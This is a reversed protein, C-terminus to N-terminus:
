GIIKVTITASGTVSGSKARIIATGPFRGTVKGKNTVTAVRTDSSTWSFSANPNVQGQQDRLEATLQITSLVGITATAPSIAITSQRPLVVSVSANATKGESTASITASGASVGTVNGDSAVTAVSANNSFWLVQRGPLPNDQSDLTAAQLQTSQGAIITASAPSIRVSAVPTASVNVAALGSRGESEASIITSGPAIAIVHGTFSVSAVGPNSSTWAVPRGSLLAGGADRVLATFTTNEGVLLTANTPSVNVSAVPVTTVTVTSMGSKGEISAAIKVSGVRRATVRGTETVLAITPDEAAWFVNRNPIAQDNEDRAEAQLAFSAGVAITANAPQVVVSHVSGDTPELGDSSCGSVM